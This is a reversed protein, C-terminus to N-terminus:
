KKLRSYGSIGMRRALERLDSLTWEELVGMELIDAPVGPVIERPTEEVRPVPAEIEEETDRITMIEEEYM